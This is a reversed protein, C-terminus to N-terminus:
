SRPPAPREDRWLNTVAYRYAPGLGSVKMTAQPYTWVPRASLTWTTRRCPIRRYLWRPLWWPRTPLDASVQERVELGAPERLVHANVQAVLHDLEYFLVVEANQAGAFLERTIRGRASLKLQELEVTEMVAGHLPYVEDGAVAHLWHGWGLDDSM